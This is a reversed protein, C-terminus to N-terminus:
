RSLVVVDYNRELLAEALSQGLFGGGGALVVRKRNAPLEM